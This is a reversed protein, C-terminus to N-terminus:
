NITLKGNVVSSSADHISLDKWVEKIDTVTANLDYEGAAAANKVLFTMTIVTGGSTDNLASAYMFMVKGAESANVTLPYQGQSYSVYSLVDADYSFEIVFGATKVTGGLTITVTVTEGATGNVSSVTFINAPLQDGCVSCTGNEYQHGKGELRETLVDSCVTCVSVKSGGECETYNSLAQDVEYSHDAKEITEYSDEKLVHCVSCEQHRTGEQTCSAAINVVWQYDHPIKEVSEEKTETCRSCTFTKVGEKTCTAETTVTGEDWDHGLVEITETKTADCRSCTVTREGEETCTPEKTVTESWDHGLAEVTETQTADCRSCTVTREGEETCTPGKTVETEVWDHGLAEVMETQTADCRSCAVTREGEQTCTPEKTVTEVWDHGLPDIMETQTADCRSCAVTREGEETCTPEKTVETEVWDHGLSATTVTERSIEEHCVTCYVVEEYSGAETCTAAKENERVAEGPTHGAAPIVETKTEDCRSCSMVKEGAVTCTPEKTVEAEAWDHGLASDEDTRTDTADCRDCKATETGDETCKADGNSVYNTFSHGLAATEQTERSIEEKCVTCYVVEEYSGAETCTAAKENERVAEGPTHGSAPITLETIEESANADAFNKGCESCSWHEVTGDEICTAAVAEHHMLDHEHRDDGGAFVVALVVAVAGVLVILGSILGIILKKSM